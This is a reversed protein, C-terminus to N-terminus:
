IKPVWKTKPGQPNTEGKPVWFKRAEIIKFYPQKTGYSCHAYDICSSRLHSRQYFMQPRFDHYVHYPKPKPRRFRDNHVAKRSRYKTLPIYPSWDEDTPYLRGRGSYSKRRQRSHSGQYNRNSKPELRSIHRQQTGRSNNSTYRLQSTEVPRKGKDTKLPLKLTDNKAVEKGKVFVIKNSDRSNLSTSPDFQSSSTSADYGLGHKISSPRQVNQIDDLTKSAKSFSAIVKRYGDEKMKRSECEKQLDNFETKLKNYEATQSNLNQLEETLQKSESKLRSNEEKLKSHSGKIHDFDKLLKTLTDHLNLPTLPTDEIDSEDSDSFNLESSVEDGDKAMLCILAENESDSSDSEETSSSDAPEAEKDKYEKDKSEVLM